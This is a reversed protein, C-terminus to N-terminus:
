RKVLEVRRNRARGEESGNDALPKDAGFGASQLRAKDIGAATLAAVVAAARQESLEKNHAANGSNDTHGEIALKLAPNDRMLKVIEDVAPKGDTRITARDTDFNIYLAVRGKQDLETKMAEAKVLGVSQAMAKEEVTTVTVNADSAAVSLWIQKDPTRILFAEYDYEMDQNNLKKANIDYTDGGNRAVFADSRPNDAPIKVGGLEKVANEYNRLAAVQSLGADRLAYRRVEVRGEVKRLTNGTVIYAADFDEKRPTERFAEHLNAPWDLYPFPPLAKTSIPVSAPDFPAAEAAQVPAAAPAAATAAASASSATAAPDAAQGAAAEPAKKGCAALTLCAAFALPLYRHTM